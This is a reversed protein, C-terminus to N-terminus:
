RVKGCGLEIKVDQKNSNIQQVAGYGSPCTSKNFCDTIYCPGSAKYYNRWEESAVLFSLFSFVCLNHKQFFRM